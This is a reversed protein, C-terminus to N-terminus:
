FLTDCDLINNRRGPRRAFGIFTELNYRFVLEYVLGGSFGVGTLNMDVSLGILYDLDNTDGFQFGGHIILSSTNGQGTPVPWRGQYFLGYYLSHWILFAGVQANQFNEQFDFLPDGQIEMKFQPSITINRRAGRFLTVPYLAGFHVTLRPPTSNPLNLISNNGGLEAGFLSPVHHLAFGIAYRHQYYSRANVSQGADFRWLLGFDFDLYNSRDNALNATTGNIPGLIPDIQDSFIANNWNIRHQIWRAQLGIHLNNDPWTVVYAYNLGISTTQYNLTGDFSGLINLGIGSNLVPEQWGVTVNYLNYGGDLTFWRSQGVAHLTLGEDIGTFAPNLQMRNLFFQSFTPDQAHVRDGGAICVLFYAILIFLHLKKM